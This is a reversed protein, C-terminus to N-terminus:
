LLWRPAIQDTEDATIMWDLVKGKLDRVLEQHEPDGYLNRTEGPDQELDYLEGGNGVYYNLKWRRTRVMKADPHRVGGVGQGREYFMGMSNIVEPIINEAFVETRAAYGAGGTVLAAFSRGQMNVPVPAGALELLTPALDVMEILEEYTRALIRRPWCILLPAQVSAEWFLNKGELGHELLQDGHDTSIVIITNTARGSQELEDLILGIERDLMSVSAYYSRYIWQLREREMGYQPRGRLIQKQVPAPLRRIEEITVSAPLPIEVDDYMSDYPEPVTHPAHPKFFSSYLFFPRRDRAMARLTERTRMGTWATPTHEYAIAGRFPNKAGPVTAHYPISARPDQAKRWRVYDSFRDTSGVGDDLQVTDWGMTLAHERTPPYYHLKGVAGTQYGEGGLLQQLFVERSDCPTYNVRNKHSHPYRGTFSSVRSPVCVPSQVFAHSFNASRAALRDLNPTRILRNGNAGLCDYRLQDLMIWLIDPKAAMQALAAPPSALFNRRTMLAM